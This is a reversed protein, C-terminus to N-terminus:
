FISFVYKFIKSFFAVIFNKKKVNPLNVEVNKGAQASAEAPLDIVADEGEPAM